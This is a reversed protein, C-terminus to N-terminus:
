LYNMRLFCFNNSILNGNLTSEKKLDAPIPQFPSPQPSDQPHINEPPNQEITLLTTDLTPMDLEDQYEFQNIENHFSTDDFDMENFAYDPYSDYSGIDYDLTAVGDKFSSIKSSDKPEIQGPIFIDRSLLSDFPLDTTQIYENEAIKPELAISSETTPKDEENVDFLEFDVQPDVILFSGGNERILSSRFTPFSQPSETSVKAKTPIVNKETDVENFIFM